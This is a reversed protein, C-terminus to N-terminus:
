RLAPEADQVARVQAMTPAFAGRQRVTLASTVVARNLAPRVQSWRAGRLRDRAQVSGLVGAALLGSILGAMFSDGAGVTDGIPVDLRDVGLLDREGALVAVAGQPGRTVVVLSPGAALWRRMVQEVADGPYLWTLDEDSAKVLDARAVLSEVRALVDAPSGMLAPRINPDYSVTGVRRMREVVDLVQSGGPELTAAISGTHLHGYGSLDGIEPVSWTLDFEYTARGQEDLRAYALATRAAGDTGAVVSVGASRAWRALRDGREDKGWWACISAPDGLTALGCAVNLLSGGVHEVTGEPRSVVDVLAEGLCLVAREGSM